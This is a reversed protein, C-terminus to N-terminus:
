KSRKQRNRKKAFKLEAVLKLREASSRSRDEAM